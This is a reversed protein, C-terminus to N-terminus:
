QPASQARTTSPYLETLRAREREGLRPPRATSTAERSCPMCMLATPDRRDHKLGLAHGLEHAIVRLTAASPSAPEEDIAVLYRRTGALPWAFPMLNQASLLVVVDADLALLAAPPPPDLPGTSPRGARRYVQSAFNEVARLEPPAVAVGSITLGGRLGLEAFADNWFEVADRVRGIRADDAGAALVVVRAGAPQQAALASAALALATVLM